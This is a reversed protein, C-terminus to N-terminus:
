IYISKKIIIIMAANSNSAIDYMFFTTYYFSIFIIYAKGLWHIDSDDRTRSGESAISIFAWIYLLETIYHSM